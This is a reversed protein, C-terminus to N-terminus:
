RIELNLKPLVDVASRQCAIRPDVYYRQTVSASTHGAQRRALELSGNCALYSINTRRIKHFLDHGRRSATLGAGEVIRRFKVFFYRPCNPWHFILTRKPTYLHEALLAATPASLPVCQGLLTKQTESRILLAPGHPHFDEVELSRIAGVRLGSEYVVMIMSQWYWSAPLEGVAGALTGAHTVLRQLEDATWAMPVKRSERCRPVDRPPDSILHKRYACNLLTLLRTRRANITAPATGAQLRDRMYGVIMEDTIESIRPSNAYANFQRITLQYQYISDATLDIRSPIFIKTLFEAPLMVVVNM